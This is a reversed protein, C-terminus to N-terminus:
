AQPSWTAQRFYPAIDKREPSKLTALTLGVSCETYHGNKDRPSTLPESISEIVMKQFYHQGYRFSVLLPATSPLLYGVIGKKTVKNGVVLQALVPNPSLYQPTAWEMLKRLPAEVEKVPDSWARFLLRCSIKSPASGSFIQTSNIKTIGTSGRLDKLDTTIGKLETGVSNFLSRVGASGSATAVSLAANAISNTLPTLAGAQLMATIAPAKSEPGTQEFSSQWNFGMEHAADMEIPGIIEPEGPIPKGDYDVARFHVILHDSLRQFNSDLIQPSSPATPM